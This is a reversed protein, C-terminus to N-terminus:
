RPLWDRIQRAVREAAPPDFNSLVIVTYKATTEVVANIGPAGGAIGLTNPQFDPTSLKAQKMAQVFALLDRLNSYGGGASSGRGPLTDLNPLRNGPTESGSPGHRTYGTATNPPLKGREFWDSEKMGAPGYINQKVYSYYDTGTVKEIIAGLVIYGGNSYRRQSGPQFDLPLDAFLPLYESITVIKDKPTRDFREGFFDGIGSSMSLMHRITVKGAADKNPYNPLFKSITDDLSLKGQSALQHIAINTFIKNISGLNFRTDPRNATKAAQDAFGYAREFLIREAQAILVAGSFEGDAAATELHKEVATLLEAESAKPTSVQGSAEDHGLDEVRIGRLKPPEGGALEFTVELLEREASRLHTVVSAPSTEIIKVLELKGLRQKMQAFRNLRDQIPVRELDQKTVYKTFFNRIQDKGPSNFAELYDKVLRTQLNEVAQQGAGPTQTVAPLSVVLLLSALIPNM